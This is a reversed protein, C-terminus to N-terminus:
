PSRVRYYHSQNAPASSDTFQYRGPTLETASGLATWNSSPLAVNPSALVTFPAGVVNSFNLQVVANSPYRYISVAPSTGQVAGSSAAFLSDSVYTANIAHSGPPLNTLTLTAYGFIGYGNTVQAVQGLFTSGDWFSVMGSPISASPPSSSVAATITVGNNSSNGSTILNLTSGYAHVKQVMTASGPSFTGNGSYTVTIFHNGLYNSGATLSSTTVTTMGNTLPVNTAFNTTVPTLTRYTKDTFTVTGTPLTGLPDVNTVVATFTIPQGAVVTRMDPVSSYVGVAVNTLGGLAFMTGGNLTYITGDPGLVTPVYPEGIGPSLTASETLCNAALDWRYVHGDESPTFVSKTAPNVAATNICWERVAYPYNTGM